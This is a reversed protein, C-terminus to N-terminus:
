TARAKAKAIGRAIPGQGQAQRRRRRPSDSFGLGPRGADRALGQVGLVQGDIGRAPADPKPAAPKKVPKPAAPKKVTGSASEDETPMSIYATILPQRFVDISQAAEPFQKKLQGLFKLTLGIAKKRKQDKRTISTLISNLDAKGVAKAKQDPFKAGPGIAGAARARARMDDVYGEDINKLNTLEEKILQKLKSKTLKM